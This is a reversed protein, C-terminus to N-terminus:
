PVGFQGRRLEAVAADIEAMGEEEPVDAFAEALRSCLADFRALIDERSQAADIDADQIQSTKADARKM